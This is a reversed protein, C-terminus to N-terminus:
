KSNHQTMNHSWTRSQLSQQLMHTYKGSRYVRESRSQFRVWSGHQWTMDHITMDHPSSHIHPATYHTFLISTLFPAVSPQSEYSCLLFLFLSFLLFSSTSFSLSPTVTSLSGPSPICHLILRLYILICFFFLFIFFLCYHLWLALSIQFTWDEVFM